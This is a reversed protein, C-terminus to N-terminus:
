PEPVPAAADRNVRNRQVWLLAVGTAGACLAVAQSTSLMTVSDPALGLLRNVPAVAWEFLFGRVSDGRMPELTFRILAYGVLWRAVTRGEGPLGDRRRMWLLGAFLLMEAGAEYLQVPHVSLSQGTAVLATAAQESVQLAQHVHAEFAASGAPFHVALATDCEGGFCCGAAYCGLRGIAHGLPIYTVVIDSAQGFPVKAHRCWLAGVLMAGPISGYFVLGGEWFRLAAFCDGQESCMASLTPIEMVVFLLRAGLVGGVLVWFALDIFGGATLAGGRQASRGADRAALLASLGLGLSMAVGYSPIMLGGAGLTTAGAAVRLLQLAGAGGLLGGFVFGLWGEAVARDSRWERWLLTAGAILVVCWWVAEVAPGQHPLGFLQLLWPGM